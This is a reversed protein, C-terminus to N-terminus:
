AFQMQVRARLGELLDEPSPLAAAQVLAYPILTSCHLCRAERIVFVTETRLLPFTRMCEPCALVIYADASDKAERAIWIPTVSSRPLPSRGDPLYHIGNVIGLLADLDTAKEYFADAAVGPPVDPGSYASSMAIVPIVPFKRRVVSLLEFGSMGPMYLDSLLINPVEERIAALASFGDQASRVEYGSKTLILSLLHRLADDDDVLLLTTKHSSM